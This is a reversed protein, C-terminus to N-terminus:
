VIIMILLPSCRLDDAAVEAGLDRREIAVAERTEAGRKDVSEARKEACGPAREACVATADM